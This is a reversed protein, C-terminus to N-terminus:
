FSVNKELVIVVDGDRMYIDRDLRGGLMISEVDVLITKTTGNPLRRMVKVNKMRAFQAPGGARLIAQSITVDEDGPLEYKGQRLVQGFVTFTESEEMNGRGPGNGGRQPIYIEDVVIIVTAKVFVSKELLSKVNYALDRCSRGAARVPGVHKALIDGSDLVRIVEGQALREEVIRFSLRDGSKLTYSSDLQDMNNILSAGQSSAVEAAAPAPAAAPKSETPVRFGPDQASLASTLTLVALALFRSKM